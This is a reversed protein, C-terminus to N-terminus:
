AAPRHGLEALNTSSDLAYIASGRHWRFPFSIIVTGIACYETFNVPTTVPVIQSRLITGEFGVVVLQGNQTAVGDLHSPPSPASTRGIPVFNTSTLVVGQNGVVYCTNSVMIADNLWNTVGTSIKTWSTGNTSTLVTGNEGLVLLRGNLCRVRELGFTVGSAAAAWNTGNTSTLIKGQDGCAVLLGNTLISNTFVTIGILENTISSNVATWNTGGLLMNVNHRYEPRVLQHLQPDFPQQRLGSLIQQRFACVDTIENTTKTPASLSYWIVGLSSANNTVLSGDYNTL